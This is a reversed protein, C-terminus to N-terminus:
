CVELQEDFKGLITDVVSLEAEQEEGEIPVCKMNDNRVQVLIELALRMEKKNLLDDGDNDM